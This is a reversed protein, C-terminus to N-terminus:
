SPGYRRMFSYMSLTQSDTYVWLPIPDGDVETAECAGRMRWRTGPVTERPGLIVGYATYTSYILIHLFVM